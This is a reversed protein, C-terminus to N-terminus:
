SDRHPKGAHQPPAAVFLRIFGISDIGELCQDRSTPPHIRGVFDRLQNVRNAFAVARAEPRGAANVSATATMATHATLPGRKANLSVHCSTILVPVVIM